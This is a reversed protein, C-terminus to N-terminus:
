PEGVLDPAQIRMPCPPQQLCQLLSTERRMEEPASSMHLLRYTLVANGFLCLQRESKGSRSRKHLRNQRETREMPTSPIKAPPSESEIKKAVRPKPTSKKKTAPM